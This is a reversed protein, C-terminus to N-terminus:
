YGDSSPLIKSSLFDAGILPTYSVEIELGFNAFQPRLQDLPIYATLGTISDDGM